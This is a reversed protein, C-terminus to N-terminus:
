KGSMKPSHATGSHAGAVGSGSPRAGSQGQQFGPLRHAHPTQGSEFLPTIAM